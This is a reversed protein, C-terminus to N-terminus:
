PRSLQVSTRTEVVSEESPGGGQTVEVTMATKMTTTGSEPVVSTTDIRTTGTGGSSFSKVRSVSSAPSGLAKMTDSASLQTTTVDLTAKVGDRAKLTYLASQLLDAGSASMRSVVQWRAGVGVAEAPLPAVMSEFSQNLGEVLSQAAPPFGKPLAIKVDRVRGKPNLWYDISLGKMAQVQPRMAAALQEAEAGKGEVTIGLLGALIKWEGSDNTEGVSGDLTMALRPIKAENERGGVKMRVAMDMAMGLNPAPGRAIAYSLDARPEAGADLLRVIAAGGSPILKDAAGAPLVGHSAKPLALPANVGASAAKKASSDAPATRAASATPAVASASSAVASATPATVPTATPALEATPAPKAEPTTRAQPDAQPAPSVDKGCAALPLALLLLFPMRARTM